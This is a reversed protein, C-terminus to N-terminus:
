ATGAIARELQAAHREVHVVQIVFVDGLNFRLLPLVPSPMRLRRWDLAEARDMVAMFADQKQLFAEVVGNRPTPGPQFKRPARMPRPNGLMSALFRGPLTPKWERLPAAADPRAGAVLALLPREYLEDSVCLHELVEGGSWRTPGTRQSLQDPTCPRALTAIRSTSAIARERLLRHLDRQIQMM